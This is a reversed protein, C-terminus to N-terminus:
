VHARGIQVFQEEGMLPSGVMMSHPLGHIRFSVPSAEPDVPIVSLQLEFASSSLSRAYTGEFRLADFLAAYGRARSRLGSSVAEENLHLSFSFSWAQAAEKEAASAPLCFCLLAFALLLSLCKRM